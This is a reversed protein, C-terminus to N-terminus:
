LGGPPVLREIDGGTVRSSPWHKSLLHCLVFHADKQIRPNATQRYMVAVDQIYSKDGLLSLALATYCYKSLTEQASWWAAWDDKRLKEVYGTDFLKAPAIDGASAARYIESLRAKLGDDGRARELTSYRSTGEVNLILLFQGLWAEPSAENMMALPSIPADDDTSLDGPTEISGVVEEDDDSSSSSSEDSDSQRFRSTLASLARKLTWNSM